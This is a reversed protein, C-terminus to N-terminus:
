PNVSVVLSTSMTSGASGMFAGTIPAALEPVFSAAAAVHSMGVALGRSPDYGRWGGGPLYVECWAHMYGGGTLSAQHEYGSVFRAAIGLSRAADCFLMALDRCTGERAALTQDSGLPPGEERITQRFVRYIRGCLAALFEQTSDGSVMRVDRAFYAVSPPIDGELYVRLFRALPETYPASLLGNEPVFDFPNERVSEVLAKSEFRLETAPNLFWAQRITNGEQDLCETVSSPEPFITLDYELLRQAGDSRPRLRMTHVGLHVESSYRYVTSHAIAIKM